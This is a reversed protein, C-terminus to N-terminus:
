GPPSRRTAATGATSPQPVLTSPEAHEIMPAIPRSTLVSLNIVYPDESSRIVHVGDAIGIAVTRPDKLTQRVCNQEYDCNQLNMTRGLPQDSRERLLAIIMWPIVVPNQASSFEGNEGAIPGTGMIREALPSRLSPPRVFLLYRQKEYGKGDVWQGLSARV